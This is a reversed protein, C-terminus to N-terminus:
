GVDCCSGYGGGCLGCLGYGGGNLWGHLWWRVWAMWIWWKSWAELGVVQGVVSVAMAVM